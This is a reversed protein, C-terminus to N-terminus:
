LRRESAELETLMSAWVRPDGGLRRGRDQLEPLPLGGEVFQPKLPHGPPAGRRVDNRRDSGSSACVLFIVSIAVAVCSVPRLM